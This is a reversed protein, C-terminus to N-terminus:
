RCRRPMLAVMGVLASWSAVPSLLSGGAPSGWGEFGLDVLLAVGELAADVAEFAVAGHRGAVVFEGNTVFGGDV